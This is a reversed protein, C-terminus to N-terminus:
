GNSTGGSLASRESLDAHIQRFDWYGRVEIRGEDGIQDPVWSFEAFVCDGVCFGAVEAAQMIEEAMEGLDDGTLFEEPMSRLSCPIVHTGHENRGDLFLMAFSLELAERLRKVEEKLNHAALLGAENDREVGLEDCIESFADVAVNANALEGELRKVEAEAAEAKRPAELYDYAVFKPTMREVEALAEDRERTLREIQAIIAAAEASSLHVEGDFTQGDRQKLLAVVELEDANPLTSTM